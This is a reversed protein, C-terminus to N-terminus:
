ARIAKLVPAVGMVTITRKINYALISLSAEASVNKMGRMRFHTAGMWQKLTAFVHEVTCRRIDMMEPAADLRAQMRDLVHEEEWRRIRKDKGTTCRARVTCAKCAKQNFYFFLQKGAEIQTMRNQLQQGAPCRYTDTEPEYTFDEKGWRGNARAMSTDAKPVMPTIGDDECLKIQWGEYYGRDALVTIEAPDGAAAKAARAMPLLHTRDHGKNTVENAIVLHHKADVAAQLNYGV